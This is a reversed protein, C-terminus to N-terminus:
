RNIPTQPNWFASIDTLGLGVLILALLVGTDKVSIGYTVTPNVGAYDLAFSVLFTLAAVVIASLLYAYGRSLKGGRFTSYLRYASVLVVLSVLFSAINWIEANTLGM